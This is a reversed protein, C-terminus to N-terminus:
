SGFRDVMLGHRVGRDSVTVTDVGLKRMVTTVIAAGALITDARKPQLGALERRQAVTRGRYLELQREMEGVTLQCGQIVDPDYKVMEHKVAAMNTIAGGMGVLGDFDGPTLEAFAEELYAMLQRQEDPTVPDSKCYEETLRLAGINLSFKRAIQDGSGFIFETSGGGVDFIAVQKAGTIASRAAMYSLRAEEEGPIVEVRLGVEAEVRELFQPANKATRLAMTGVAVTDAVENAQALEVFAGLAAATRDMAEASFVGTAQLGDGLRSLEARDAIAKFTGDAQREAVHILVSNSGVDITAYRAQTM